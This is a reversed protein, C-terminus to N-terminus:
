PLLSTTTPHCTPQRPSMSLNSPQYVLALSADTSSVDDIVWITHSAHPHNLGPATLYVFPNHLVIYSQIGSHQYALFWQVKSSVAKTSLQAPTRPGDGVWYGYMPAHDLGYPPPQALVVRKFSHITSPSLGQLTPVAPPPLLPAGLAPPTHAM